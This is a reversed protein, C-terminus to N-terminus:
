PLRFVCINADGLIGGVTLEVLGTTSDIYHEIYPIYFTKVGGASSVSMVFDHLGADTCPSTTCALPMNCPTKCQATFTITGSDSKIVIFDKGARPEFYVTTDTAAVLKGEQAKGTTDVMEIGTGSVLTQAVM